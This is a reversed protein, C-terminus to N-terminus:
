ALKYGMATSAGMLYRKGVSDWFGAKSEATSFCPMLNMVLNDEQDFAQFAYIRKTCAANTHPSKFLMMESTTRTPMFNFDSDVRWDNDIYSGSKLLAFDHINNDRPINTQYQQIDPGVEARLWNSYFGILYSRADHPSGYGNSWCGFLWSENGAFSAFQGRLLIQLKQSVYIGTNIYQSDMTSEIYECAIAGAPLKAETDQWFLIRSAQNSM